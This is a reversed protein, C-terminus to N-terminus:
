PRPHALVWGVAAPAFSGNFLPIHAGNQLTWLEVASSNSCGGWRKITTEAGPLSVDLDLPPASEDAAPSCGDLGVWDGVTEEAGPYPAVGLSGGKYLITADATGQLHLVSVPSSPKCGTADKRMEGALVVVGAIVDAHSCALRYAMFGGNSHGVFFIRKPDVNVKAKAEDVLGMLYGEDDVKSGYFDCCAETANWYRNGMPDATGDPSLAFYGLKDAEATIGLYSDEGPGNATYGHLLVVLPLAAAGDYQPPVHLTVPRDGGLV